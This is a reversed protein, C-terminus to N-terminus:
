RRPRRFYAGDAAECADSRALMHVGGDWKRASPRELSTLVRSEPHIEHRLWLKFAPPDDLRMPASCPASREEDETDSPEPVTAQSGGIEPEGALERELCTLTKRVLSNGHYPDMLRRLAARQVSRSGKSENRRHAGEVLLSAMGDFDGPQLLGGGGSHVYGAGGYGKFTANAMKLVGLALRDYVSCAAYEPAQKEGIRIPVYGGDATHGDFLDLEAGSCQAYYLKGCEDRRRCARKCHTCAYVKCGTSTDNTSPECLFVGRM